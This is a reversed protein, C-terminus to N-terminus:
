GSRAQLPRLTVNGGRQVQVTLEYGEVLSMGVLPFIEAEDMPIRRPEGDWDVTAEYIEFVNESGDAM